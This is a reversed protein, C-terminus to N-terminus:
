DQIYQESKVYIILVIYIIRTVHSMVVPMVWECVHCEWELHSMVGEYMHCWEIMHTVHSMVAPVVWECIHCTESWIHCSENTCTVHSVEYTHCSENCWARGSFCTVHRMRFTVHSRRVHSMVWDYTRYSENGCARSVWLHSMDWEMHSMLWEYMHCSESWIHSM